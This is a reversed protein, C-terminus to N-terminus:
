DSESSIVPKFLLPFPDEIKSNMFIDEANFIMALKTASLRDDEEIQLMEALLNPFKAEMMIGDFLLIAKDGGFIYKNMSNLSSIRYAYEPNTLIKTIMQPDTFGEKQLMCELFVLGMSYIDSKLLDHYFEFYM